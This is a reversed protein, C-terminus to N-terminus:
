HLQLHDKWVSAISIAIDKNGDSEAMTSTANTFKVVTLPNDNDLITYTAEVPVGLQM